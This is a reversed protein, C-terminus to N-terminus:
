GLCEFYEKVPDQESSITEKLYDKLRVVEEPHLIVDGIPRPKKYLKGTKGSKHEFLSIALFTGQENKITFEEMEIQHFDCGCTLKIPKKM